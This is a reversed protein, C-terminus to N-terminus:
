EGTGHQVSNSVEEGEALKYEVLVAQRIAPFVSLIVYLRVKKYSIEGRVRHVTLRWGAEISVGPIRDNLVTKPDSLYEDGVDSNTKVKLVYIAVAPGFFGEEPGSDDVRRWSFSGQDDSMHDDM